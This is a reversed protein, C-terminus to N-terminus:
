LKMVACCARRNLTVITRANSYPDEIQDHNKDRMYICKTLRRGNIRVRGFRRLMGNYTKILVGEEVACREAVVSNRLKDM